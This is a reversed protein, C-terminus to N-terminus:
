PHAIVVWNGREDIEALLPGRRLSAPFALTVWEVAGPTTEGTRLSLTSHQIRMTRITTCNQHM